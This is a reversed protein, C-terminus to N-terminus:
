KMYHRLFDVAPSEADATFGIRIDIEYFTEFMKHCSVTAAATYRIRIDIEYLIKFMRLRRHCSVTAAATYRNRTDIENLTEFMRHDSVTDAATYWDLHINGHRLFETAPSRPPLQTGLEKTFMKHCSVTAAATYGLRAAVRFWEHM